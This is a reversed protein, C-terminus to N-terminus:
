EYCRTGAEEARRMADTRRAERLSGRLDDAAGDGACDGVGGAGDNGIGLHEDVVVLGAVLAMEGGAGIAAVGRWGDRDAGVGDGYRGCPKASWVRVPM